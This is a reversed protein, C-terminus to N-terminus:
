VIHKRLYYFFAKYFGIAKRRNLIAFLVLLRNAVSYRPSDLNIMTAAARICIPMKVKSKDAEALTYNLKEKIELAYLDLEPNKSLEILITEYNRILYVLLTSILIPQNTEVFDAVENLARLLYDIKVSNL